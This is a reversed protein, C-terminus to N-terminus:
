FANYIHISTPQSIYNGTVKQNDTSSMSQKSSAEESQVAKDVFEAKQFM